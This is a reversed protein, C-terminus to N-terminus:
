NAQAMWRAVREARKGCHVLLEAHLERIATSLLRRDACLLNLPAPEGLADPCLQILQGSELEDIVDIASRYSIGAGALTWRRVLDSDDSARDGHVDVASEGSSDFFRWRDNIQDGLFFCLCNHRALDEVHVPSGMRLLYAPTACLVRRNHPALPLAILSSDPPPGYRLAVDVPDRYFDALRDSVRVRLQLEPFRQQFVDLWPPLLNRGLDSTVSLQLVGRVISHGSTVADRGEDLTQLAQQCHQLFREGEATLRMSRTSRVFLPTGLEAELRILAASVAAPTIGQQRAAASLSGSQAALVFLRLPQLLKM